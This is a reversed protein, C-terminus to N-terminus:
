HTCQKHNKKRKRNEGGGRKQKGRPASHLNFSHTWYEQLDNALEQGVNRYTWKKLAELWNDMVPFNMQFIPFQKLTNGEKM